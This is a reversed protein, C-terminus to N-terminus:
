FAYHSVHDVIIKNIMRVFQIVFNITKMFITIMKMLDLSTMFVIMNRFKKILSLQDYEFFFNMLSLIVCNVFEESFENMAFLLNADRIIVRNMKLTVNILRYKEKKKKKMLFWSNRYLEYRFEFVDNKIRNRIMEAVIEILAKFIQFELIQWAKHSMTRIKMLSTVKSRISDKEIFNWFFAIERNFLMELLFENERKLLENKMQMRQIRESKLRTKKTLESFKSIFFEVFQDIFNKFYKKKKIINEKWTVDDDLKFDNSVCIDNLKMKQNKLKYAIFMKTSNTSRLFQVFTMLDNKRSFKFKNKQVSKMTSQFMQLENKILSQKKIKVIKVRASQSLSFVKKELFCKKKTKSWSKLIFSKISSENQILCSEKRM